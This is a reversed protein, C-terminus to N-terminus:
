PLDSLACRFGYGNNTEGPAHHGRYTITILLDSWSGGRLARFEGSALGTPNAAPSVAYYTEGYWDVLWEWANGAMDLAGYPSAGAPCSGVPATFRYGDNSSAAYSTGLSRDAINARNGDPAQSGWPLRRGDSGLAAKEWEAETPLRRGAWNCYEAADQWAIQVVPHNELGKLSSTPGSPRRWDAPVMNWAGMGSNPTFVNSVGIRESVTQYATSQVFRAFMANTIETEDIWFAALSVSHAPLNAPYTVEGARPGMVFSGQPVCVLKMGDAALRSQGIRTCTATQPTVTATPTATTPTLTTTPLPIVSAPVTPTLPLVGAAPMPTTAPTSTAFLLGAPATPPVQTLAGPACGGAQAAALVVWLIRVAVSFLTHNM